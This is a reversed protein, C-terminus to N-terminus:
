RHSPYRPRQPRADASHPGGTVLWLFYGLPRWLVHGFEWLPDGGPAFAREGHQVIHLAYNMTDAYFRPLTFWFLAGCFAILAATCLLHLTSTEEAARSPALARPPVAPVGLGPTSM